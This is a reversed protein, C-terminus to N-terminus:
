KWLSDLIDKNKLLDPLHDLAKSKDYYDTMSEKVHGVMLRLDKNDIEPRMITNYTFRLSHIGINREKPNIGNNQLVRKFHSLLYSTDIPEGKRTFVFGSVNEKMAKLTEIYRVTKAPLVVVRWKKDQQNGKKLISVREENGDIMSNILIADQQIFQNWQLARIECSRMGTSIILFIMVAFMYNYEDTERHGQIRWIEVLKNYDDPFLDLIEQYTLIGKEKTDNRRYRELLPLTDILHYSYLEKEIEEIMMQIHNRVSASLPLELLWNDFDFGNVEDVYMRGFKPLFYAELYHKRQYITNPKYDYGRNHQKILFRSGPEYFDKCFQNFTIKKEKELLDEDKLSAIFAEAERKILCPKGETGCSKRVQKGNSDYYWYYWAKIKKGKRTITRQYLHKTM